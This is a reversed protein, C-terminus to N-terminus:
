GWCLTDLNDMTKAKNRQAANRALEMQLWPKPSGNVFGMRPVQKKLENSETQACLDCFRGRSELPHWCSCSPGVTDKDETTKNQVTFDTWPCHSLPYRTHFLSTVVGPVKKEQSGPSTSQSPKPVSLPRSMADEMTYRFLGNATPGTHTHTDLTWPQATSLM